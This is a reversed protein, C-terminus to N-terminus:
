REFGLKNLLATFRPNSHWKDFISEAKLFIISGDKEEYAQQLWRFVEASNGLGAYAISMWYPAVYEEKSKEQLLEIMNMADESRGSLAYVHALAAIPVPHAKSTALSSALILDQFAKIAEPYMQKQVYAGGLPINAVVFTPDLELAERCQNIALDYKRAFYLTLGADTRIVASFPDLLCAQQSETVAEDFRGMLSLYLAYWSHAQASNPSLEIARHFEREVASWDWDYHMLAYALSTHAEPIETDLDLAKMAAERAKPYTEKPPLVNFDGLIIYSDALGAYAKAYGPDKSLAEELYQISKRLHEPSRKNWHYRGRLYLRFAEDDATQTKALQKKEEGGLRPQLTTSIERVIEEQLSLVDTSRRNYQKGWLQSQRVVDILEMQLNIYDDRQLVRGTLISRVNLKKGVEEPDVKEGKYRFVTSRPVVRLNPLQSLSNIINETIGDTLYETNPDASANVLPLVAVSDIGEEQRLFLFYVLFTTLMVVAVFIGYKFAIRSHVRQVEATGSITSVHTMKAYELNKKERRLDALLDDIHQYREERDKALAKTVIRVLETSVKENFRAIPAPEENVISYMIAAQHEGRFPLKCTLLEYLVVGFSFIDSRHDVEEGRAQEPSMYATTGLTSGTKTLKSAGKLKAIGFDMIKVQNRHNLMINDSKIDRHIIGKEHALTLGECIQIAIEVVHTVSLEERGILERLTRGECYEMAIFMKGNFEDIEHITTINQHSLASAAKAEHIFREKETADSLLHQPLFKLAVLRDLKTDQAKYVVGMGGEGLKEVIKYHSITEGIM